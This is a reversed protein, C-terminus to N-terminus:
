DIAGRGHFSSSLIQVNSGEIPDGQYRIRYRYEWPLSGLQAPKNDKIINWQPQNLDFEVLLTDDPNLIKDTANVDTCEPREFIFNDLVQPNRMTPIIQFSCNYPKVPFTMATESINKITFRIIASTQENNTNQEPERIVETKMAINAWEFSHIVAEGQDSIRTNVLMPTQFSNRHGRTNEIVLGQGQEIFYKGIGFNVYVPHTTSGSQNNDKKNIDYGRYPWHMKVYGSIYLGEAPPNTLLQKERALGNDMIDLSLFVKQGKNLGKQKISEELQQFSISSFSYDLAVYDGKFIDRPDVPSTQLIVQTGTSLIKERSIAISGVSIVQFLIAAIILLIKFKM